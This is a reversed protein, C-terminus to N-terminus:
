LLVKGNYTVTRLIEKARAILSKPLPAYNVKIATSQAKESLVWDLLKLTQFAQDYSRDGYMQEKYFVLWTFGAIPYGFKADTNTIYVRTDAPIDGKAAITISEITPSIYNGSLNQLAAVPINQSKAFEYGVYGIAGKTQKINGAVGPNGKAGIGVPWKLSKGSGVENKWDVSVKSLYNSFIKTTGSGDSRHIVVINMAPLATSGNIAKILPDNWKTIKGLFIASLIQPTLKINPNQPLNYAIAVAGICTPIHLVEGPMQALKKDTLFADSAGFDVIKDKLSRVGGGSGIGGYTVLIKSVKKTYTKFIKNYFPLPFTAGAATISKAKRNSPALTKQHKDNCSVILLIVMILGSLAKLSKKM